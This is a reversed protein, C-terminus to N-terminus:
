FVLRNEPSIYPSPVTQTVMNPAISALMHRFSWLCCLVQSELSNPLDDNALSVNAHARRAFRPVPKSGCALFAAPLWPLRNYIYSSSCPATSPGSSGGPTETHLTPRGTSNWLAGLEDVLGCALAVAVERGPGRVSLVEAGQGPIRAWIPGPNRAWFPRPNRAWFPRATPKWNSFCNSGSARSVGPGLIRSRNPSPIRSRNPRPIRSRNPGLNRTQRRGLMCGRWSRLSRSFVKM